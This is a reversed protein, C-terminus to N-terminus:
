KDKGQAAPKYSMKRMVESLISLKPQQSVQCKEETPLDFFFSGERPVTCFECLLQSIM